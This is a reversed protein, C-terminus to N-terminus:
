HTARKLKKCSVAHNRLKDGKSTKIAINKYYFCREFGNNNFLMKWYAVPYAIGSKKLRKPNSGYVVGNVVTVKGLKKAVLREYKEAKVWTRRNITKYMPIINAMSYISKLARQDYDFSADPALHGRDAKFENHTYDKSTTRYKRPIAKDPYFRPRKKINVENVKSGDLTYGVFSAGKMNYDYCIQYYGKDLIQHCNQTNIFDSVETAMLSLPSSLLTVM